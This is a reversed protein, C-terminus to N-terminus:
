KKKPREGKLLDFNFKLKQMRRKADEESLDVEGIVKKKLLRLVYKKATPHSVGVEKAIEYVTLDRRQQYLVRLIREETSTLFPEKTM